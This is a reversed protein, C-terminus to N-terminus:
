VGFTPKVIDAVFYHGLATHREIIFHDVRPTLPANPEQAPALVSIAFSNYQACRPRVVYTVLSAGPYLLMREAQERSVHAYGYSADSQPSDQAGLLWDAPVYGTLGAATRVLLWGREFASADVLTVQEGEQASVHGVAEANYTYQVRMVREGENVDAGVSVAVAKPAAEAEAAGDGFPFIVLPEVVASSSTLPESELLASLLDKM